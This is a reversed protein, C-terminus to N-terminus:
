VISLLEKWVFPSSISVSFSKCTNASLAAIINKPPNILFVRGPGTPLFILLTRIIALTTIIPKALM